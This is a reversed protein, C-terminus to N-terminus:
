AVEALCKKDDKVCFRGNEEHPQTNNGEPLHLNNKKAFMRAGHIATTHDRNGCYKAIEPYSKGTDIRARYFYEQRANVFPRSRDPGELECVRVGHKWAVWRKLWTLPQEGIQRILQVPGVGSKPYRIRPDEHTTPEYPKSKPAPPISTYGREDETKFVPGVTEYFRTRKKGVFHKHRIGREPLRLCMWFESPDKTQVLTM